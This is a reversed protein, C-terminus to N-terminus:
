LNFEHAPLFGHGKVVGFFGMLQQDSPDGFRGPTRKMLPEAMELVTWAAQPEVIAHLPQAVLVVERVPVGGRDHVLVVQDLGM